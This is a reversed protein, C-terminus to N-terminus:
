GHMLIKTDAHSMDRCVVPTYQKQLIGLRIKQFKLRYSQAVSINFM